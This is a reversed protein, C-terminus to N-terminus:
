RSAMSVAVVRGDATGVIIEPLGDGNLDIVAPSGSLADCAPAYWKLGGRPDLVYVRRDQSTAITELIGDGDLDSWAARGAIAQDARFRWRETGDAPDLAILHGEETSVAVVPGIAVASPAADIKRRWVPSKGGRKWLAVETKDAVVIRQGEDDMTWVRPAPAVDFSSGGKEGIFWVRGSETAIVTAGPAAMPSGIPRSGLSFSNFSEPKLALLSPGSWWTVAGDWTVTVPNPLGDRLVLTRQGTRVFYRSAGDRGRLCLFGTTGIGLLVDPRGDGDADGIVPRTQAPSRSDHAWIVHGDRGSLAFVKGDKSGGVIDPRGDGDLDGTAFEPHIGERSVEARWRQADRLDIARQADTRDLVTVTAAALQFAPRFFEARYDGDPLALLDVPTKLVLRQPGELRVEAGPPNTTLTIRGTQPELRERRVEQGGGGLDIQFAHTRFGTRAIRV